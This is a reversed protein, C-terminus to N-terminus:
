EKEINIEFDFLEKPHLGLGKALELITTLQINKEGKEIKSIDSHDVNCNQALKRFSLKQDTRLSELRKGFLYLFDNKKNSIVM